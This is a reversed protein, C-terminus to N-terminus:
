KVAQDMDDATGRRGTKSWRASVECSEREYKSGADFHCRCSEEQERWQNEAVM